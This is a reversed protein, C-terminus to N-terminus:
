RNVVSASPSPLISWTVTATRGDHTWAPATRVPQGAIFPGLPVPHRTAFVKLRETGYPPVTQWCSPLVWDVDPPVAEPSSALLTARGHADFHVLQLHLETPASHRVVATLTEGPLLALEGGHRRPIAGAPACARPVTHHLSLSVGGSPGLQLRDLHEAARRARLVALVPSDQPPDSLSARALSRDGDLVVVQGEAEVVRLRAPGASLGLAELAGRWPETVPTDSLAVHVPLDSVVSPDLWLRAEALDVQPGDVAIFALSDTVTDVRGSVVAGDLRHLAVRSDQQLGLLRGGRVRLRGDPLVADVPLGMRVGDGPEVAMSGPGTLQPHQGPATRTLEAQVQRHVAYWDAAGGVLARALAQSFAGGGGANERAVETPRAAALHVIPADGPGNHLEAATGDALEPVVGAGRHGGSLGRLLGGGHCTDHSVVLLGDEGLVGALDVLAEGWDDDRLLTGDPLRLAEDYGDPEDGDDDPLRSGHGSVHVLVTDGVEVRDALAAVLALPRVSRTTVEVAPWGRARLAVELAELDASVDLVADSDGNDRAVGLLLAHPGAAVAASLLSSLLLM